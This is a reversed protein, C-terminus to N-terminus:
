ADEFLTWITRDRKEKLPTGKNGIGSNIKQWYIVWIRFTTVM